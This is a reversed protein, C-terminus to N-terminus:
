NGGSIEFAVVDVAVRFELFKQKSCWVGCTVRERVFSSASEVNQMEPPGSFGSFSM